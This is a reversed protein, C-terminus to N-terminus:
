RIKYLLRAGSRGVRYESFIRLSQCNGRLEGMSFAGAASQLDGAASFDGLGGQLDRIGAPGTTQFNTQAPDPVGRQGQAAPWILTVFSRWSFDDFFSIGNACQLVQSSVDTPLTPSSISPTPAPCPPAAGWATSCLVLLVAGAITKGAVSQLIGRAAMKKAM